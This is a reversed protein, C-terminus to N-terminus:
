VGTQDKMAAAIHNVTDKPADTINKINSAAKGAKAFEQAVLLATAGAVVGVALNRYAKDDRLRKIATPSTAPCLNRIGTLINRRFAAIEQIRLKKYLLKSRAANIKNQIQQRIKGIERSIFGEPNLLFDIIPSQLKNVLARLHREICLKIEAKIQDKIQKIFQERKENRQTKSDVPALIAYVENFERGLTDLRMGVDLGTATKVVREIQNTKGIISNIGSVVTNPQTNINSLFGLDKELPSDEFPETLGKIKDLTLGGTVVGPINGNGISKVFKSAPQGYSRVTKVTHNAIDQMDEELTPM